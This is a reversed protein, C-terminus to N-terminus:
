PLIEPEIALTRLPLSVAVRAGGGPRNTAAVTGGLKRVVNVVFFLGLGRGPRGKTSQYPKGVAALIAPDFGPGEDEVALELTDAYRRAHLAIPGAAAEFANDLLNFLSQRLTSDLVVPVDEGIEDRTRLDATPRTTQWDAALRGLFERITTEQASEGRAEGASLLIGSVIAKCRGVEAQMAEIEGLLEPDARMQPMRRWDGLIIALTSLPTGLEHAAGSALLGMRVIHDEEAARQRMDALHAERERRNRNIRAVFVALLAAVIAFCVLMGLSRLTLPGLFPGEALDLPLHVLNLAAYALVAFAVLVTASWGRLLIAGLAVQLLFIFSFPNTAGGSLYLQAALAAVDLLLAAFLEANPVDGGLRLRLLSLLNLLVLTAVVLAMPAAPVAVGLIVVVFAVGLIQSAVAIWRLQILLLLNKRGIQDDVEDALPPPVAAPRPRGLWRGFRAPIRAGVPTM